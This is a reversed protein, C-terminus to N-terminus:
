KREVFNLPPMYFSWLNKVVCQDSKSIYIEGFIPHLHPLLSSSSLIPNKWFSVNRDASHRLVRMYICSSASLFLCLSAGYLACKLCSSSTIPPERKKTIPISSVYMYLFKASVSCGEHGLYTFLSLWLYFPSWRMSDLHQCVCLTRQRYKNTKSELITNSSVVKEGDGKGKVNM